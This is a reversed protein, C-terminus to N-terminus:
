LNFRRRLDDLQQASLEDPTNPRMPRRAGKTNADLAIQSRRRLLHPRAEVVAHIAERMGTVQNDEGLVIGSLDALQRVEGPDIFDYQAAEVLFAADISAQRRAAEAAAVQEALIAREETLANITQAGEEIQQLSQQLTEVNEFGLEALLEQVAARRARELREPLWAPAEEAEIIPDQTEPM